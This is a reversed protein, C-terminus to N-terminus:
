GCRERPSTDPAPPWARDARARENGAQHNLANGEDDGLQTGIGVREHQQQVSRRALFFTPLIESRVM